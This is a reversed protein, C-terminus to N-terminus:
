SAPSQPYPAAAENAPVRVVVLTGGGDANSVTLTGGSARVL